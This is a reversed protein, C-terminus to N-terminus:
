MAAEHSGTFLAARKEPAPNYRPALSSMAKGFDEAALGDVQQVVVDGDVNSWRGEVVGDRVCLDQTFVRHGDTLELYAGRRTKFGTSIVLTNSGRSIVPSGVLPEVLPKVLPEDLAGDEISLPEPPEGDNSYDPFLSPMMEALSSQFRRQPPDVLKDEENDEDVEFQSILNTTVDDEPEKRSRKERQQRSNASGRKTPM